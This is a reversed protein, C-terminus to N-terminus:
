NRSMKELVLVRDLVLIFSLLQTPILDPKTCFKFCFLPCTKEPNGFIHNPVWVQNELVISALFLNSTNKSIAYFFILFLAKVCLMFNFFSLIIIILFSFIENKKKHNGFIMKVFEDKNSAKKRRNSFNQTNKYKEPSM